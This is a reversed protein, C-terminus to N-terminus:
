VNLSNGLTQAEWIMDAPDVPNFM